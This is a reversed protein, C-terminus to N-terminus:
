ASHFSGTSFPRTVVFSLLLLLPATSCLLDALLLCPAAGYLWMLLLCLAAAFPGVGVAFLPGCLAVSWCCVLPVCCLAVSWCCVLPRLLPSVSWCCVLPRAAVGSLLWCCHLSSAAASLPSGSVKPPYCLLVISHTHSLPPTSRRKYNQSLTLSPTHYFHYNFILV